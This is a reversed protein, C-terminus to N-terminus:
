EGGFLLHIAAYVLVGFIGAMPIVALVFLMQGFREETVGAGRGVGEM